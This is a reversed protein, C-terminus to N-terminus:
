LCDQDANAIYLSRLYTIAADPTEVWGRLRWDGDRSGFLAVVNNDGGMAKGRHPFAAGDPLTGVAAFRIDWRMRLNAIALGAALPQTEIGSFRLVVKDHLRENHQWYDLVDSWDHFFSEVEEAKYFIFAGPDWCAALAATDNALWADSYRGLLGEAAPNDFDDTV